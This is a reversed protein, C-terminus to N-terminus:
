SIVLLGLAKALAVASRRNTVALKRYLNNTHAKVTSLTIVLEHAIEKNTLEKDLLRLIDLERETLPELGEQQLLEDTSAGQAALPHMAALIRQLYADLRKDVVQGAQRRKRLKQLIPALQPLDAFSRIFGGPRGLNLARELVDLAEATHGQLQYAWAQLALVKITTRTNGIAQGQKLLHDIVALARAASTEDGQTLLLRATILSPDEFFMMPGQWRQDGAMELWQRAGQVEDRMLALEGCFAYTTSLQPLNHQQQVWDLLTDAIQQAGKDLRQAQYALALGCLADQVVWVHAHHRNAIVVSFHYAAAELNNWEYAVAGLLWHAYMQSLTLMAVQALQLLHRASHEVQPLKGAALYLYAQTFLLHVTKRQHLTPARFAKNLESIALDEQETAQLSWVLYRLAMDVVFEEDPLSWALASRASELSAQLQGSFYQFHSRSIAILAQLHRTQSDDSDRRVNNSTAVLREAATLQQSFDEFQGRAERVWAMAVLLVPSVQIQEQPVMSLWREMPAWQEQEFVELFQAEVLQAAEYGDGAALMHHLAEDVLGQRTYWGSARRHLKAVEETSVRAHLHQRLVTQFLPHLRYWGQSENLPMLVVNTREAEDLLVQVQEATVEDGLIAAGLEANFQSVMSLRMLMEQGAPALYALVEEVLYDRMTRDPVQALRALFTARDPSNRLSLATLRLLAAWGETLEELSRAAEHAAEYGLVSTLFIETEERTLRLDAASLENLQGGARWWNLPLPPDTRSSLVLHLQDLVQRVLQTLLTHIEDNEILQYDDLVVVVDGPIDALEDVLQSILESLSPYSPEYFLRASAQCADPWASQVAAAFRHVFIPLENDAADLSLWVVPQSLTALWQALLTTKGFGVPARLLTIPVELGANLRALLRPRPTADGPIHPPTIKTQLLANGRVAPGPAQYETAVPRLPLGETPQALVQPTALTRAVAQLRELTLLPTSGLQIRYNQGAWIRSAEWVHEAPVIERKHAMFFGSLQDAFTFNAHQELWDFWAPTGVIIPDGGRGPQYLRGRQVFASTRQM